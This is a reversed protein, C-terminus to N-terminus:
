ERSEIWLWLGLWPKEECFTLGHPIRRSGAAVTRLKFAVLGEALVVSGTLRLGRRLIHPETKLNWCHTQNVPITYSLLLCRIRSRGTGSTLQTIPQVRNEEVGVISAAHKVLINCICSMKKHYCFNIIPGVNVSNYNKLKLFRINLQTILVYFGGTKLPLNCYKFLQLENIYATSSWYIKYM